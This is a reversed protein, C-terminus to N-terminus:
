SLGKEDDLWGDFRGAGFRCTPDFRHKVARMVRIASPPPGWASSTHLGDRRLVTVNAHHDDHLAALLHSHARAAGGHVRVTHVGAPVSSSITVGLGLDDAFARIKGLAAPGAAPLAGFRVVTDGPEGVATAAVASWEECAEDDTLVTAGDASVERVRDAVGDPTGELRVLLRDDPGACWELAAAEVGSTVLHTAVQFGHEASAPVRVTTVARPAPHLRLVVEAVVGLTGLSGHFLKALDYGAVNKIVHGGSRATTGDALVVTTGIVLDRLSGHSTRLPGADATALLGGVTADQAARAPDLAVRQGHERVVQQVIALPTGARVAITMDAPSYRIVGTLGTTDVTADAPKAPAGWGEATGNGTILLRPHTAATEAIAAGLEDVTSPCLATM